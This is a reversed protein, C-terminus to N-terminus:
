DGDGDEYCSIGASKFVKAVAEARCYERGTANDYGIYIQNEGKYNPRLTIKFGAARLNNKAATSLTGSFQVYCRACGGFVPHMETLPFGMGHMETLPFGMGNKAAAIQVVVPTGIPIDSSDENMEIITKTKALYRWTRDRPQLILAM